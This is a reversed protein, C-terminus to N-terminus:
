CSAATPSTAACARSTPRRRCRSAGIARCCWSRTASCTPIASGSRRRTPPRRWAPAASSRGPSAACRPRGRIPCGRCRSARSGSCRAIASRSRRGRGRCRSRRRRRRGGVVRGVDALFRRRSGRGDGTMGVGGAMEGEEGRSHKRSSQRGCARLPSPEGPPSRDDRGSAARAGVVAVRRRGRARPAAARRVPASARPLRARCAGAGPGGGLTEGGAWPLEGLQALRRQQVLVLEADRHQGPTPYRPM